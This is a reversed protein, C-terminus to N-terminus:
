DDYVTGGHDEILFPNTSVHKLERRDAECCQIMKKVSHNGNKIIGERYLLYKVLKELNSVEQEAKKRKKNEKKIEEQLIEMHNLLNSYKKNMKKVAKKQRHEYNEILMKTQEAQNIERRGSEEIRDLYQSSENWIENNMDANKLDESVFERRKPENRVVMGKLYLNQAQVALLKSLIKKKKM